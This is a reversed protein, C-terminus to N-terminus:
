ACSQPESRAIKIQYEGLERRDACAIAWAEGMAAQLDAPYAEENETFIDALAEILRANLEERSM